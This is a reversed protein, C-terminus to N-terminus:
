WQVLAPTQEQNSSAEAATSIAPIGQSFSAMEVSAYRRCKGCLARRGIYEARSLVLIAPTKPLGRRGQRSASSSNM